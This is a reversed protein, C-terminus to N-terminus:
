WRLFKTDGGEFVVDVTQISHTTESAKPNALDSEQLVLLLNVSNQNSVNKFHKTQLPDVINAQRKISDAVTQHTAKFIFLAWILNKTGDLSAWEVGGFGEM